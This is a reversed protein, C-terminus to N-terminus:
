DHIIVFYLKMPFKKYRYRLTNKKPMVSALTKCGGGGGFWIIDNDHLIQQEIKIPFTDGKQILVGNKSRKKEDPDGDVDSEGDVITIYESYRYLILTAHVRSIATYEEKINPFSIDPSTIKGEIKGERGITLITTSKKQFEQTLNIKKPFREDDGERILVSETKRPLYVEMNNPNYIPYTTALKETNLFELVYKVFHQCNNNDTYIEFIQTNRKKLKDMEEQFNIEYFAVFNTNEQLKINNITELNENLFKEVIQIKQKLDLWIWPVFKTM